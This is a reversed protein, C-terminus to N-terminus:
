LQLIVHQKNLSPDFFLIGCRFLDVSGYVLEHRTIEKWAKHMEPSYHIDDLVFISTESIKSLLQQFYNLTSDYRHNADMFAFDIKRVSQLYSPLTNDINGRVLKINKAGAFEFTLTAIDALAESGEFTTIQADAKRALYLTNIGLSAGLEIITKAKFHHIIRGYLSSFRPSSLSTHAIASISRPQSENRSGLDTIAVKRKDSLLKQRLKEIPEIEHSRKHNKIINTYFDFFFPSHLSHEDVADLWYSLYSRLQFLKNPV